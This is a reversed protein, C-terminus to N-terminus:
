LKIIEQYFDSNEQIPIISNNNKTFMINKVILEDMLILIKPDLDNIKFSIHNNKEFTEIDIAQLSISTKEKNLYKFNFENKEKTNEFAKTFQSKISPENDFLEKLKLLTMVNSNYSDQKEIFDPLEDFYNQIENLNIKDSVIVDDNFKEDNIKYRRFQNLVKFNAIISENINLKIQENKGNKKIYGTLTKNKENFTTYEFSPYDENLKEVLEKPSNIESFDFNPQNVTQELTAEPTSVPNLTTHTIITQSKANPNQNVTEFNIKDDYTVQNNKINVVTGNYTKNMMQEWLVRDSWELNTVDSQLIEKKIPALSGKQFMDIEYLIGTKNSFIINNIALPQLGEFYKDAIENINTIKVNKVKLANSSLLISSEPKAVIGRKISNINPDPKEFNVPTIIPAESIVQYSPTQIQTRISTPKTNPPTITPSIEGVPKPTTNLVIPVLLDNVIKYEINKTNLIAAKNRIFTYEQQSIQSTIINVKKLEGTNGDIIDFEIDDNDDDIKVNQITCNNYKVFHKTFQKETLQEATLLGNDPTLKLNPPIISLKPKNLVEPTSEIEVENQKTIRNKFKVLASIPNALNSVLQAKEYDALKLLENECVDLLKYLDQSLLKADQQTAARFNKQGTIDMLSERITKQEVKLTEKNVVKKTVKGSNQIQELVSEVKQIKKLLTQPDQISKYAKQMKPNLGEKDFNENLKEETYEKGQEYNLGTMAEFAQIYSRRIDTFRAEYSAVMSHDRTIRHEYTEKATTVSGITAERLRQFKRDAADFAQGFWNKKLYKDTTDTHLDPGTILAAYTLQTIRKKLDAQRAAEVKAAESEETAKKYAEAKLEPSLVPEVKAPKEAKPPKPNNKNGGMQNPMNTLITQSQNTGGCKLM